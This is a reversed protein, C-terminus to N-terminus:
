SWLNFFKILADYKQDKKRVSTKNCFGCQCTSNACLKGQKDIENSLEKIHLHKFSWYKERKNEVQMDKQRKKQKRNKKKIYAECVIICFICFCFNIWKEM